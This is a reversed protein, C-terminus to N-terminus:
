ILSNLFEEVVAHFGSPEEDHIVHSCTPFEILRTNPRQSAMERAQDTTLAWSKNGHLLLAPCTSAIWDQRWNGMMLRQSQIMHDYRFRFGWGDPYETVSELFYTDNSVKKALFERVAQFTPWREPWDALFGDFDNIVKAGIDEIILARVLEPYRAALQYANVGGLSHGLIVVPALNLHEIVAVVDQVYSQRSYDEPTDSWGHGRQDLAVVRWRAQLADALRTFTGGRSFHGHLALLPLGKGGFDVYALQVGNVTLFQRQVMKRDFKILVLM